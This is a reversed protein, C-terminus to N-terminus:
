TSSFRRSSRSTPTARSRSAVGTTGTAARSASRWEADRPHPRFLLSLRGRAGAAAVLRRAARRFPGRVPHEDAHEGDVVVVPRSPDLGYARLLARVRSAAPARPLRRDAAMRHRRRARPSGTTARLDDEMSAPEARHLLDCYPSIVGKGVTHDWSAVHAVVPLGLRRAATPVAGRERAARELARPRLLRPADGRAAARPVHRRAGFLWREMARDVGRWHPLPATATPTSCGTPTGRSWGRPM